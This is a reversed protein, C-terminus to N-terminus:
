RALLWHFPFCADAMLDAPMLWILRGPFFDPEHSWRQLVLLPRAMGFRYCVSISGGFQIGPGRGVGTNPRSYGRSKAVQGAAGM